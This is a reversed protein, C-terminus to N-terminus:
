RRSSSRFYGEVKGCRREGQKIPVGLLVRIIIQKIVSANKDNMHPRGLAGGGDDM